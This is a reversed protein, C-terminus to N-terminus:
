SVDKDFENLAGARAVFEHSSQDQAPIRQDLHEQLCTKALEFPGDRRNHNVQIVRWAPENLGDTTLMSLYQGFNGTRGQLGINLHGIERRQPHIPNSDPVIEFTIKLM